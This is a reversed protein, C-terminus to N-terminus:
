FVSFLKSTLTSEITLVQKWIYDINRCHCHNLSYKYSMNPHSKKIFTKLIFFILSLVYKYYAMHHNMLSIKLLSLCLSTRLIWSFFGNIRHLDAIFNFFPKQLYWWNKRFINKSCKSNKSTVNRTKHLALLNSALDSKIRPVLECTLANCFVKMKWFILWWWMWESNYEEFFWSAKSFNSQLYSKDGM